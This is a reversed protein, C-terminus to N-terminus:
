RGEVLLPESDPRRTSRVNPRLSHGCDQRKTPLVADNEGDAPTGHCPRIGRLLHFPRAKEQHICEDVVEAVNALRRGGGSDLADEDPRKSGTLFFRDDADRRDSEAIIRAVILRVAPEVRPFGVLDIGGPREPGARGVFGGIPNQDGLRFADDRAEGRNVPAARLLRADLEERDIRRPVASTDRPGKKAM